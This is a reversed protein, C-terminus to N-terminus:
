WLGYRVVVCWGWGELMDSDVCWSGGWVCVSPHMTEILWKNRRTSLKCIYNQTPVVTKAVHGHEVHEHPCQCLRVRRSNRTHAKRRSFRDFALDMNSSVVLSTPRDERCHHVSHRPVNTYSHPTRTLSQQTHNHSAPTYHQNTARTYTHMISTECIFRVSGQLFWRLATVGGDGCDVCVGCVDRIM